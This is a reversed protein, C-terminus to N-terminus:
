FKTSRSSVREDPKIREFYPEIRIRVFPLYQDNRFLGEFTKQFGLLNIIEEKQKESSKLQDAIYKRDLIESNKLFLCSGANAHIDPHFDKAKQSALIMSVGFKRIERFLKVVAESNNMKHAEDIIVAMHLSIRHEGSVLFNYLKLLMFEAVALKVEETPLPALRIVTPRSILKSFSEDNETRAFLNLSFIPSLRNLLSLHNPLEQIKSELDNFAPCRKGHIEATERTIGQERFCEEMATRLNAEQLPGLGYIRKLIGATAFISNIARTKGSVPDPVLELPNLPLGDGPDQAVIAHRQLFQDEVYDNNFDFILPVMNRRTIEAILSRLVQTKGSGSTGVVLMHGNSLRPYGGFPNWHVQTGGNDLKRGLLIAEQELSEKDQHDARFKWKTTLAPDRPGFIKECRSDLPCLRCLGEVATPPIRAKRPDSASLWEAIEGILREGTPFADSLDKSSLHKIDPNEDMYIISARTPIGSTAEVMWAYTAVQNLDGVLEHDGKCKFELVIFEASPADFLLADYKGRIEVSIGGKTIISKQLGKEPPLFISKILEQASGFLQRQSEITEALFESLKGLGEALILVEESALPAPKRTDSLAPNLYVRDFHSWLATHLDASSAPSDLLLRLKPDRGAAISQFMPTAVRDHFFSGCFALKGQFIWHSKKKKYEDVMLRPCLSARRIHTPWLIM